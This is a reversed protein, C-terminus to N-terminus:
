LEAPPEVTISKYGKNLLDSNHHGNEDEFVLGKSDSGRFIYTNSSGDPWVVHVKSGLTITVKAM